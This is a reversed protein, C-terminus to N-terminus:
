SRDIDATAPRTANGRSSMKEHAVVARCICDRLQDLSYPKLLYDCAGGRLAAIVSAISPSDSLLIVALDPQRQELGELFAVTDDQCIVSDVILVAHDRRELDEYMVDRSDTAFVPHGLRSLTAELDSRPRRDEDVVLISHGSADM